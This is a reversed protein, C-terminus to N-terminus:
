STPMFFYPTSANGCQTCRTLRAGRRARPPPRAAAPPSPNERVSGSACRAPQRAAAQRRTGLKSFSFTPLSASSAARMAALLHAEEAGGGGVARRVRGWRLYMVLFAPLSVNWRRMRTRMRM